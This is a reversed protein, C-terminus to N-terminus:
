GREQMERKGEARDKTICCWVKPGHHLNFLFNPINENLSKESYLESHFSILFLHSTWCHVLHFTFTHLYRIHHRTVDDDSIQRFHLHFTSFVSVIFWIFGKWLFSLLFFTRWWSRWSIRNENQNILFKILERVSSKAKLRLRCSPPNLM